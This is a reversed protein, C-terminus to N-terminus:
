HSKRFVRVLVLLAAAGLLFAVPLSYLSRAFLANESLGPHSSRITATVTAFGIGALGYGLNIAVGRFSLVTARLGSDTWANLYNSLFYQMMPMSLGIPLIVWLGWVPTALCLGALSSFILLGVLAFVTGASYKAALRRALSAAVFGLLAFVSGLFGNVFEPLEILRYYNSAFTLFLRVMSDFLVACLLLLRIRPDSFVFRAGAIINALASRIPHEDHAASSRRPERMAVACGLAVFSTALTLYVPWRTTEPALVEWHFFKMVSQVFHRDFALAGLIMAVFFSGSSWRTLNALVDRWQGDRDPEELSDYALAEDAGSACAEAMGSLIRNLVLLPFLWAGRPAFAFVSMEAVMLIGATVVLGKRGVLDALAGSPIELVLITAAWVTNLLAYQELSLGLDLFLVGLVPYYFRANFFVRFAIFLPINRRM